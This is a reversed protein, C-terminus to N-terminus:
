ATTIYRLPSVALLEELKGRQEKTSDIMWPEPALAYAEQYYTEAESSKGLGLYAEAKSAV